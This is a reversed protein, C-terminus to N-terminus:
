FFTDSNDDYENSIELRLSLLVNILFAIGVIWYPSYIIMLPLFNLNGQLLETIGLLPLSYILGLCTMFLLYIPNRTRFKRTVLLRIVVGQMHALEFDTELPDYGSRGPRNRHGAWGPLMFANADLYVWGPVPNADEVIEAALSEVFETNTESGAENEGPVPNIVRLYQDEEWRVRANALNERAAYFRPNLQIAKLYSDIAAEVQDSTQLILGLYNYAVAIGPMTSKATECEALAKEPEDSYAHELAQDLHQKATSEEFEEELEAEVSLMNKWAEQLEPDIQIAKQFSVIANELQGMEDYIEGRYNYTIAFEPAMQIALECESLAKDLRNNELHQEVKDLIRLVQTKISPPPVYGLRAALIEKVIEFVEENWESTDSGQWIELLDETDRIILNNYIQKRLNDSM